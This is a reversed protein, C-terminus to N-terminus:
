IKCQVNLLLSSGNLQFVSNNKRLTQTPLYFLIQKNVKDAPGNLIITRSYVDLVATGQSSGYENVALCTYEGEQVPTVSGVDLVSITQNSTRSLVRGSYEDGNFKFSLTPSPIGAASCKISVASGMSKGIKLAVPSLVQPELTKVRLETGSRIVDLLTKIECTYMGSHQSLLYPIRIRDRGQLFEPPVPLNDKTWSVMASDRLLPDVSGSCLLEFDAGAPEAVM